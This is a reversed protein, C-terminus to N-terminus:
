CTYLQTQKGTITYLYRHVGAAVILIVTNPATDGSVQVHYNRSAFVPYPASVPLSTNLYVLATSSLSPQGLDRAVVSFEYSSATEYDLERSAYIM